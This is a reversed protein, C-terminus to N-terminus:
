SSAELRFATHQGTRAMERAEAPAWDLALVAQYARLAQTRRGEIDNLQGYRALVYGPLYAPFQFNQHVLDDLLTLADGTQGVSLYIQSALFQAEPGPVQRLQELLATLDDTAELRWARDLIARQEEAVAPTHDAPREAQPLGRLLYPYDMWDALVLLRRQDTQALQAIVADLRQQHFGTAPGQGLLQTLGNLYRDVEALREPHTLQAPWLPRLLTEQFQADIQAIQQLIPKGQPFQELARRFVQAEGKLAAQEDLARVALGREEAWPLLHFLPLDNAERWVSAALQEASYSALLIEQPQWARSM